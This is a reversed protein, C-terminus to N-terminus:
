HGQLWEMALTRQGVSFHRPEMKLMLTDDTDLWPGPNEEAVIALRHVDSLFNIGEKFNEWVRALTHGALNRYEFYLHLHDTAALIEQAQDNIFKFDHKNLPSNVMLALTRDDEATLQRLSKSEYTQVVAEPTNKSM